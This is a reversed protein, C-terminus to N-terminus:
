CNKNNFDESKKEKPLTITITTGINELSTINFTGRHLEIVEKSYALGLGTGNTKTTFFLESVHNLTEKNMGIGNDKVIIIINTKKETIDVFVKLPSLEQQAELTNKLLNIFVQKLKNYDGYIYIEESSTITLSAKNLKFLPELLEKIDEFLYAVDMEEKDVQKLKGYSSFEDIITKSRSIESKIISIYKTAKPINKIDFMELYGNCVAIPNKLEHTLKSISSRLSKEKNLEQLIANLDVIKSGNTLIKIELYLYVLFLLIAILIFINIKKVLLILFFLELITTTTFQLKDKTIILYIVLYILYKIILIVPNYDTLLLTFIILILSTKYYKGRIALILPISYFVSTYLSNNLRLLLLLTICLTFELIIKKEKLEFTKIYTLYNVYISTPFFLSISLILINNITLM